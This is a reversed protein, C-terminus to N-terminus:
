IALTGWLDERYMNVGVSRNMKLVFGVSGLGSVGSTVNSRESVFGKRRLCIREYEEKEGHDYYCSTEVQGLM